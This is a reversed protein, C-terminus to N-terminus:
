SELWTDIRETHTPKIGRREEIMEVVASISGFAGIVMCWVKIAKFM